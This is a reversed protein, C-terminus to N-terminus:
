GNESKELESPPIPILRKAVFLSNFVKDVEQQVQPQELPPIDSEAIIEVVQEAFGLLLKLSQLITNLKM